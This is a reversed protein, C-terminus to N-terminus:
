RASCEPFTVAATTTHIDDINLHACQFRPISNDHLNLVAM